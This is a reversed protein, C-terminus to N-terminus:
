APTHTLTPVLVADLYGLLYDDEVHEDELVSRLVFPAILVLDAFGLAPNDAAVEGRRVAREVVTQLRERLASVVRDRCANRLEEDSKVAHLVAGILDAEAEIRTSRGTVLAALDSRLSGTDSPVEDSVALHRLAEVVLTSKSGWQRYLTAKSSSTAEAVQDMTIREFGHEAVLALTGRFLEDLREATLRTM